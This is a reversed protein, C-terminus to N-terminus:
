NRLLPVGGRRGVGFAIRYVDPLDLRGDARTTFMGFDKLSDILDEYETSQPGTPLAQSDDDAPLQATGALQETLQIKLEAKSWLGLVQDVEIPVQQGRLPKLASTVWPTDESVELVRIESAKQVGNRIADWHLAKIHASHSARSQMNAENLASLFSRPSVQGRGDALHNPIWTYTLGKRHNTGMHVSAILGLADELEARTGAKGPRWKAERSFEEALPSDAGSMQHFLLSYLSEPDWRLSVKNNTLKSADPFDSGASEFMDERIFIKARLNKTSTRLTLALRMAGNTLSDALSRDSNLRDMADFLLLRIRGAAGSAEDIEMLRDEVTGPNEAVWQVRDAWENMAIVETAGFGNLAVATWIDEAAFREVLSQLRRQSPYARGLATGFAPSTDVRELVPLQYRDVALARLDSDQLAQFWVTKGVGRGGLVITVNPDLAQRHLFPTFLTRTNPPSTDSDTAGDLATSLLARHDNPSLMRM